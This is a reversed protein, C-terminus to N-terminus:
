SHCVFAVWIFHIIMSLVPCAPIFMLARIAYQNNRSRDSIIDENIDCKLQTNKCVALSIAIMKEQPTYENDIYETRVIDNPYFGLDSQKFARINKWCFILGIISVILCLLATTILYSSLAKEINLFVYISLATCIPIYIGLLKDARTTSLELSNIKGSLAKESQSVMLSMVNEPIKTWDKIENEKM